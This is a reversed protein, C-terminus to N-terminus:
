FPGYQQIKQRECLDCLVCLTLIKPCFGQDRSEAPCTEPNQGFWKKLTEPDTWAQFVKERPANFNRTLSLTYTQIDTAPLNM